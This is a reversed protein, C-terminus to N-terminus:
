WSRPFVPFSQVPSQQERVFRLLRSYEDVIAEFIKRGTEASSCSADGYVGTESIQMAWTSWSVKGSGNLMDGAVWENIVKVSDRDDLGTLDVPYGFHMLLSTEYECAHSTGGLKSKRIKGFQKGCMVHPISVVVGVGTRDFVDRAALRAVDGHPGHTSIIIIKKFGMEAASVLVDAIYNIMVDWRIRFVGPWNQVAKPVYGYPITPMVLVPFGVSMKKAVAEAVRDAIISDCGVQLHPGHQETQGLPLLLVANDEIAKKIEPLKKEAFYISM